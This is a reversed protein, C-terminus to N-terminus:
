NAPDEHNKTETYDLHESPASHDSRSTSAALFPKTSGSFRPKTSALVSQRTRPFCEKAGLERHAVPFAQEGAARRASTSTSSLNEPSPIRVLGLV